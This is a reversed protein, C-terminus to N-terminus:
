VVAYNRLNLDLCPVIQLIRTLDSQFLTQTDTEKGLMCEDLSFLM